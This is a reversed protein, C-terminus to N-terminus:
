CASWLNVNLNLKNLFIKVPVEFILTFDSVAYCSQILSDDLQGGSNDLQWTNVALERLWILTIGHLAFYIHYTNSNQADWKISSFKSPNKYIHFNRTYIKYM